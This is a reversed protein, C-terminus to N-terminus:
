EKPRHALVAIADLVSPLHIIPRAYGSGHVVDRVFSRRGAARGAGTEAVIARSPVRIHSDFQEFAVGVQADAIIALWRPAAAKAYGLLQRLDYVPLLSGRLGAVGLVVAPSGPLRTIPRDSYVAAIQSLRMGYPDGAITVALLDDEAPADGRPAEVFARDFTRRLDDARMAPTSGRSTM